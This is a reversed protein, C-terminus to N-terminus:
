ITLFLPAPSFSAQTDIGNEFAPGFAAEAVVHVATISSRRCVDRDGTRVAGMRNIRCCVGVGCRAAPLAGFQRRAYARGRADPEQVAALAAYPMAAAFSLTYVLWGVVTLASVNHGTVLPGILPLASVACISFVVTFLMMALAERDASRAATHMPQAKAIAHRAFLFGGLGLVVLMAPATYIRAAELEGAAALGIIGIVTVRTLALVSPQVAAQLSRWLGYAAVARYHAPLPRALWRERAPLLCIGVPSPRCNASWSRSSCGPSPSRPRSCLSRSRVALLSATDIAAIRWFMLTTMLLRRLADEILYVFM